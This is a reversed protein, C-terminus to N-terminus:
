YIVEVNGKMSLLCALFCHISLILATATACVCDMKKGEVAPGSGNWALQVGVTQQQTRSAVPEASTGELSLWVLVSVASLRFM